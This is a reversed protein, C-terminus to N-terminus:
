GNHDDQCAECLGREPQDVDAEITVVGHKLCFDEGCDTCTPWTTYEDSRAGCTLGDPGKRDCLTAFKVIVPAM